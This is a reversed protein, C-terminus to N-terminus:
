LLATNTNPPLNSTTGGAVGGINVGTVTGGQAGFAFGYQEPSNPGLTITITYATGTGAAVCTDGTPANVAADSVAALLGSFMLLAAVLGWMRRM